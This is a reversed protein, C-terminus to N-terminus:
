CRVHQKAIQIDRQQWRQNQNKQNNQNPIKPDIQNRSCFKSSYEVQQCSYCIIRRCWQVFSSIKWQSNRWYIHGFGYSVTARTSREGPRRIRSDRININNINPKLRCIEGKRRRIERITEVPTTINEQQYSKM